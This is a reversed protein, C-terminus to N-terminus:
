VSSIFTPSNSSGGSSWHASGPRFRPATPLVPVPVNQLTNLRERRTNQCRM